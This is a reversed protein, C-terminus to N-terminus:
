AISKADMGAEPQNSRLFTLEIDEGGHPSGDVGGSRSFSFDAAAVPPSMRTSNPVVSSPLIMKGIEEEMASASDIGGSTVNGTLSDTTVGITKEPTKERSSHVRAM